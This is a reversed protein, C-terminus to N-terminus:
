KKANLANTFAELKDAVSNGEPMEIKCPDAPTNGDSGKTSIASNAGPSKRLISLEAEMETIKAKVESLQSQATISIEKESAFESELKTKAAQVVEFDQLKQGVSEMQEESMEVSAKKDALVIETLGIFALFKQLKTM